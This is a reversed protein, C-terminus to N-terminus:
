LGGRTGPSCRRQVQYGGRQNTCLGGLGPSRPALTTAVPLLLLLTSPLFDRERERDTERKGRERFNAPTAIAGEGGEGVDEHQEEYEDGNRAEFNAERGIM